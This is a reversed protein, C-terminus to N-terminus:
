ILTRILLQLLGFVGGFWGYQKLHAFYRGAFSNFVEEIEAPDMKRVEEATLEKLELSKLLDESNVKFSDVGSEIFLELLYKLSERDLEEALLDAGEKIDAAAQASLLENFEVENILESINNLIPNLQQDSLLEPSILEIKQLLQALESNIGKLEIENLLQDLESEILDEKFLNKVKFLLQLKQELKLYHNVLHEINDTELELEVSFLSKKKEKLVAGLLESIQDESLHLVETILESGQSLSLFHELIQSLDIKESDMFESESLNSLLKFYLKKLKSKKEVFYQERLNQFIRATVSDIFEDLDAMYIAGSILTNKLLGGKKEKELEIIEDKKFNILKAIKKQQQDIYNLSRELYYDVDAKLFEIMESKFDYNIEKNIIEPIIFKLLPYLEKNQLFKKLQASNLNFRYGRGVAATMKRLDLNTILQEQLDAFDIKNDAFYSKIIETLNIESVKKASYSNLKQNIPIKIKRLDESKIKLILDDVKNLIEAALFENNEKLLSFFQQYDNEEFYAAINDRIPGRKKEIIEAASDAKLLEKEVFKGMSDAFRGRNKAVVGPTFPVKINAIKKEEYPNFIMWLALVNTLWGVGGYLFASSLYNLWLPASNFIATEAGSFSFILGAGAGLLAGLYTIPKLEQGMFDKIAQQVEQDSLQQLNESAAQAVQGEILEPLNNYFFATISDTLKVVTKEKKWLQHLEKLERNAFNEKLRGFYNKAEETIKDQNTDLESNIVKFFENNLYQGLEAIIFDSQALKQYILDSNERSKEILKQETFLDQVELRFLYDLMVDLSEESRGLSKILSLAFEIIKDTIFQQFDAKSFLEVLQKEKNKQYFNWIINELEGAQKQFKIKAFLHELKINKIKILINEVLEENETGLLKSFSKKLYTTPLGYEEINEKYKSYIGQRSMAKFGTSAEIEAEVAELILDNLNESETEVFDLIDSESDVLLASLDAYLDKELEESLLDKIKLNSNTIEIKFNLLLEDFIQQLVKNQKLKNMEEISKFLDCVKIGEIEQLLDVALSELNFLEKIKEKFEAQKKQDLNQYNQDFFNTVEKIFNKLELQVESSLLQDLRKEKLEKYIEISIKELIDSQEAEKITKLYFHKVLNKLEPKPIIREMKEAALKETSKQLLNVSSDGLLSALLNYNESWSPLDSLINKKTRQDLYINFFDSITQAFKEKFEPRSFEAELTHHNILDREVLVSISEIFEDKTKIVVGGLPGYEKFIMKLALNNTLYGTVAGTGAASIIALLDLAM